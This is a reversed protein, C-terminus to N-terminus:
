LGCLDIEAAEALVGYEEATWGYREAHEAHEATDGRRSEDMYVRDCWEYGAGIVVHRFSEIPEGEAPPLQSGIVRLEAAVTGAFHREWERQEEQWQEEEAPDYEGVITPDYPGSGGVFGYSYPDAFPPIIICGTLAVAAASAVTLAAFGRRCLASM